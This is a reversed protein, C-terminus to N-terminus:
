CSGTDGPWEGILIMSSKLEKHILRHELPSPRFPLEPAGGEDADDGTVGAGTEAAAFSEDFDEDEAGVTADHFNSRLDVARAGPAVHFGALLTSILQSASYFKQLNYESDGSQAPLLLRVAANTVHVPESSSVSAAVSAARYWNGPTSAVAVMEGTCCLRRTESDSCLIYQRPSFIVKRGDMIRPKPCDESDGASASTPRVFQAVRCERGKRCGRIIAEVERSIKDHDFVVRWVRVVDVFISATDSSHRESFDKSVEWIIRDGDNVRAEYLRCFSASDGSQVLPKRQDHTWRGMALEAITRIAARRRSLQVRDSRLIKFVEASCVVEWPADVFILADVNGADDGAEDRLGDSASLPVSPGTVVPPSHQDPRGSLFGALPKSVGRESSAASDAAGGRITAAAAALVTASSYDPPGPLAVMSVSAPDVGSVVHEGSAASAVRRANRREIARPIIDSRLLRLAEEIRDMTTPEVAVTPNQVAAASAALPVCAEVVPCSVTSPSTAHKTSAREGVPASETTDSTSRANWHLILVLLPWAGIIDGASCSPSPTSRRLSLAACLPEVISRAQPQMNQVWPPLAGWLELANQLACSIRDTGTGITTGVTNGCFEALLMDAELIRSTLLSIAAQIPQTVLSEANYPFFVRAADDTGIVSAVAGRIAGPIAAAYSYRADTPLPHSSMPAGAARLAVLQSRLDGGLRVHASVVQSVLLPSAIWKDLIGRAVLSAATLASKKSGASAKAAADAVASLRKCVADRSAEAVPYGSEVALRVFGAFSPTSELLPLPPVLETGLREVLSAAKEADRWESLPARWTPSSVKEGLLLRAVLQPEVSVQLTSGTGWIDSFTGAASAHSARGQVVLRESLQKASRLLTEASKALAKCPMVGYVLGAMHLASSDVTSLVTQPALHLAELAATAAGFATQGDHLPVALAAQVVASAGLLCSQWASQPRKCSSDCARWILACLRQYSIRLTSDCLAVDDVFEGSEVHSGYMLLTSSVANRVEPALDSWFDSAERFLAGGGPPLPQALWASQEADLLGWWRLVPLDKNFKRKLM